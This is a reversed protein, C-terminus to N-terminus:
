EWDVVVREMSVSLVASAPITVTRTLPGLNIRGPRVLFHSVDPELDRVATAYEEGASQRAPGTNGAAMTPVPGMEEGLMRTGREVGHGVVNGEEHVIPADGRASASGTREAKGGASISPTDHIVRVVSGVYRDQRASYVDMGPRVFLHPSTM